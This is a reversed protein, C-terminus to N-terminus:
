SRSVKYKAYGVPVLALLALGIVPLLFRPEFITGLDVDKGTELMAGVGDGVMSYVVSGPIIGIFTGILYTGLRVGLFAPVLNVLWFPFVPVLRLFLMYSLANARFGDEKRRIAGSARARLFDALAYRAALFVAGAGVTAGIVTLVAGLWPGFLFGGTITMVAAGPVSFAVILAYSAAYIVCALLGIEAVWGTLIERNDRLSDLSIFQNFGFAIFVVLGVVLALLPLFRALSLPPKRRPPEDIQDTL